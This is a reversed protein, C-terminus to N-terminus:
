QVDQVKRSLGKVWDRVVESKSVGSVEAHRELKSMEEKSLRVRLVVERAVKV